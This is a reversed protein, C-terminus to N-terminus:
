LIQLFSRQLSSTHSKTTVKVLLINFMEDDVDFSFNRDLANLSSNIGSFSLCQFSKSEMQIQQKAMSALHFGSCITKESAVYM